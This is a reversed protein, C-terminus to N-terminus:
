SYLGWTVDSCYGKKLQITKDTRAVHRDKELGREIRNQTLEHQLEVIDFM